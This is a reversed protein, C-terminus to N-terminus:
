HMKTILFDKSLPSSLRKHKKLNSENSGPDDSAVFYGLSGHGCMFLVMGDYPAAHICPYPTCHHAGYRVTCGGCFFMFYLATYPADSERCACTCVHPFSPSTPPQRTIYPRLLLLLFPFFQVTCRVTPREYTRGKSTSFIGFEIKRSMELGRNWKGDMFIPSYNKYFLLIPTPVTSLHGIGTM